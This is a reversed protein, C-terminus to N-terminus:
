VPIIKNLRQYLIDINEKLAAKIIQKREAYLNQQLQGFYINFAPKTRSFFSPIASLKTVQTHEGTYM